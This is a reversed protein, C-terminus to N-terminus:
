ERLLGGFVCIQHSFEILMTNLENSHNFLAGMLEFGLFLQHENNVM